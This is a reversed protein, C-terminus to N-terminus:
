VRTYTLEGYGGTQDLGAQYAEGWPKGRDQEEQVVEFLKIADEDMAVWGYSRALADVDIENGSGLEQLTVGAYSLAHGIICAPTGDAYFYVCNSTWDPYVWDEGKDAIAKELLARAEEYNISVPV